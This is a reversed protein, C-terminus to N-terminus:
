PRSVMVLAMDYLVQLAAAAFALGAGAWMPTILDPRVILCFMFLLLGGSMALRTIPRLIFGLLLLLIFLIFRFVGFLCKAIVVTVAFGLGEMIEGLAATRRVL